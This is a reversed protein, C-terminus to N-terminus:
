IFVMLGRLSPRSWLTYSSFRRKKKTGVMKAKKGKSLGESSIESISRQFVIAATMFSVTKSMPM